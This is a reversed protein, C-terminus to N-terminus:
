LAAEGFCQERDVDLPLEFSAAQRYPRKCLAAEGFCQKRDIDLPLELLLRKGTRASAM